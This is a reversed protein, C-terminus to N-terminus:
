LFERVLFDNVFEPRVVKVDVFAIRLTFPNEVLRHEVGAERLVLYARDQVGGCGAGSGYGLPLVPDLQYLLHRLFVDAYRVDVPKVVIVAHSIHLTACEEWLWDVESGREVRLQRCVHRLDAGVFAASDVAWPNVIGHKVESAVRSPAANPLAEALVGNDVGAHAFGLDLTILSVVRVM